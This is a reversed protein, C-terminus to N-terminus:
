RPQQLVLQDTNKKHEIFGDTKWIKIKDASYTSVFQNGSPSFCINIIENNMNESIQSTESKNNPNKCNQPDLKKIVKCDRSWVGISYHYKKGYHGLLFFEDKRSFQVERVFSGVNVKKVISNSYINTSVIQKENISGCSILQSPQVPNFCLDAIEFKHAKILLDPHDQMRLDRVCINGDTTGFAVRHNSHSYDFCNVGKFNSILAYKSKSSENKKCRLDIQTAFGHQSVTLFVFPSIWRIGAGLGFFPEYESVKKRELIDFLKVSGSEELVSLFEGTPCYKISSIPSENEIIQVKTNKHQVYFVLKQGLVFAIQNQRSWDLHEVGQKSSLGQTNFEKFPTENLDNEQLQKPKFFEFIVSETKIVKSPITKSRSFSLINRKKGLLSDIESDKTATGTREFNDFSRTWDCDLFSLLSNENFSRLPIYRDSAYNSLLPISQSESDRQNLLFSNLKGDALEKKM